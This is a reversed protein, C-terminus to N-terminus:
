EEGAEEESALNEEHYFKVEKALEDVSEYLRTEDCAEQFDDINSFGYHECHEDLYYQPICVGEGSIGKAGRRLCYLVFELDCQSLFETIEEFTKSNIANNKM